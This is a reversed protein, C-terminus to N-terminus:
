QWGELKRCASYFDQRVQSDNASVYVQTTELWRHGLLIQITTVPVDASLLDHAFAHRLRHATLQVGAMERYVMLRKHIATTSLGM